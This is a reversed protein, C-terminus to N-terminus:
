HKKKVDSYRGSCSSTCSICDGCCANGGRRKARVIHVVALVIAALILVSLLIDWVNVM